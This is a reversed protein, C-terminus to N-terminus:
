TDFDQYKEYLERFAKGDYDELKHCRSGEGFIRINVEIM